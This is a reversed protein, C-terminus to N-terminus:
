WYQIKKNLYVLNKCMKFKMEKTIRKQVLLRKKEWLDKKSRNEVNEPAFLDESYLVRFFSIQPFKRLGLLFFAGSYENKFTTIYLM